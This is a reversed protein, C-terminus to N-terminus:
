LLRHNKPCKIDANRHIIMLNDEDTTPDIHHLVFEKLKRSKSIEIKLADLHDWKNALTSTVFESLGEAFYGDDCIRYNEFWSRLDSWTKMNSLAPDAKYRCIDEANITATYLVVLLTLALM